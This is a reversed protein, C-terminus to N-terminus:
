PKFNLKDEHFNYEQYLISRSKDIINDIENVELDVKNLLFYFYRSRPTYRPASVCSSPVLKVGFEYSLNHMKPKTKPM